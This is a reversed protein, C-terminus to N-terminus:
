GVSELWFHPFVAYFAAARTLHEVPCQDEPGHAYQEDGPGFGVTPIGFRGCTAVGNTSFTWKGLRPPEDLVAQGARVAAVVAPDDEELV